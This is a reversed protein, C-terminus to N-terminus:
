HYEITEDRPGNSKTYFIFNCLVQQDIRHSIDVNNMRM